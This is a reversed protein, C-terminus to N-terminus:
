GEKSPRIIIRGEKIDQARTVEEFTKIILQEGESLPVEAEVPSQRHHEYGVQKRLDRFGEMASALGGEKGKTVAYKIANEAKAKGEEQYSKGLSGMDSLVSKVAQRISTM